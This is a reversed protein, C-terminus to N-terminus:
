TPGEGLEERLAELLGDLTEAEIAAVDREVRGSELGRREVALFVEESRYFPPIVWTMGAGPERSSLYSSAEPRIKRVPVCASTRRASTCRWRSRAAPILVAAKM